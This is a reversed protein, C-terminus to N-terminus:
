DTISPVPSTQEPIQTQGTTQSQVNPNTIIQYVQSNESIKASFVIRDPNLRLPTTPAWITSSMPIVALQGSQDSQLTYVDTIQTFPFRKLIGIYIEGTDLYIISYDKKTNDKNIMILMIILLIVLLAILIWLVIKFKKDM